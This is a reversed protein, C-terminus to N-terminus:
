RAWEPLGKVPGYASEGGWINQKVWQNGEIRWVRKDRFADAIADFESESMGVYDLWRQLDRPKVHDYKRVMKLGEKRTM